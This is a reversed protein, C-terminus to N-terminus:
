EGGNAVAVLFTVKHAAALSDLAYTFRSITDDLIPGRPGFSLNYVTLDKRAPVVREVVDIAEYLDIDAPDSTPLVRFSVVSVPPSPLPTKSDVDNLPGHLIAGAVATGHAISDADPET